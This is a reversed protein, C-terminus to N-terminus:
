NFYHKGVDDLLVNFCQDDLADIQGDGFPLESYENAMPNRFILASRISGRDLPFRGRDLDRLWGWYGRTRRGRPALRSAQVALHQGRIM